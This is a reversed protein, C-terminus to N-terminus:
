YLLLLTALSVPLPALFQIHQYLLVISQITYELVLDGLGLLQLYLYVVQLRLQIILVVLNNPYLSYNVFPLLLDILHIHSDFVEM